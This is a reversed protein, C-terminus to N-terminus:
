PSSFSKWGKKNTRSPSSRGEQDRILMLPKHKCKVPYWAHTMCTQPCAPRTFQKPPSQPQAMTTTLLDLPLAHPLSSRKFYEVVESEGKSTPSRYTYEINLCMIMPAMLCRPLQGLNDTQCTTRAGKCDAMCTIRQKVYAEISWNCASSPLCLDGSLAIFDSANWRRIKYRAPLLELSPCLIKKLCSLGKSSVHNSCDPAITVIASRYNIVQAGM